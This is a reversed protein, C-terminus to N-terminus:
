KTIYLYYPNIEEDVIITSHLMCLIYTQIYILIYLWWLEKCISMWWRISNMKLRYFWISEQKSPVFSILRCLTGRYTVNDSSFITTYARLVCCICWYYAGKGRICMTVAHKSDRCLNASWHHSLFTLIYDYLKITLALNHRLKGSLILRCKYTNAGLGGLNSSLQSYSMKIWFM